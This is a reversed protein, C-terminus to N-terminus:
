RNVRNRDFFDAVRAIVDPSVSCAIDDTTVKLVDPESVCNMAHTVCPLLVTEHRSSAGADRIEEDWAVFESPPVNFDYDGFLFLLRQPTTAVLPPTADDFDLWSQWYAVSTGAIVSGKFTGTRLSALDTVM